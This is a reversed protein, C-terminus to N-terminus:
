PTLTRSTSRARTPVHHEVSPMAPSPVRGTAGRTPISAALPEGTSLDYGGLPSRGPVHPTLGQARATRVPVGPQQWADDYNAKVWAAAARQSPTRFQALREPLLPLDRWGPMAHDHWAEVAVNEDNVIVHWVCPECIAQYMLDGPLPSASHDHDVQRCDASATLVVLEHGGFVIPDCPYSSHWTHSRAVCDFHGHETTYRDFAALLDAVPYFDTVYILPVGEWPTEVIAQRRLEDPDFLAPQSVGRDTMESEMQRGVDECEGMQERQVWGAAPHTTAQRQWRRASIHGRVRGLGVTRVILVIPGSCVSGASM